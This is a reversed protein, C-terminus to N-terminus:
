PSYKLIAIKVFFTGAINQPVNPIKLPLEFNTNLAEV